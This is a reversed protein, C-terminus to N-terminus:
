VLHQVGILKWGTAAHLVENLETFRPIATESIGFAAIGALFEDCARGPLLAMQRRFLAAWTAHEQASYQEWPQEVIATTYVPVYGKDTMQHEVRNPLNM